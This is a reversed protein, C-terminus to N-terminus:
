KTVKRFGARIIARAVDDNSQEFYGGDPRGDEDKMAVYKWREKKLIEALDDQDELDSAVTARIHPAAAELAARISRRVQSAVKFGGGESLRLHALTESYAAEAAREAEAPIAPNTM